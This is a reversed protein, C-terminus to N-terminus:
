TTKVCSSWGPLIPTCLSIAPSPMILPPPISHPFRSCIVPTSQMKSPMPDMIRHSSKENAPECFFNVLCSLLPLLIPQWYHTRGTASSLAVATIPIMWALIIANLLRASPRALGLALSVLAMLFFVVEGHFYHLYVFFNRLTQYPTEAPTLMRIVHPFQAFEDVEFVSLMSTDKAGAQNPPIFVLFAALGLVLLIALTTKQTGNM